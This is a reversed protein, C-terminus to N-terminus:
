DQAVSVSVDRQGKFFNRIAKAVIEPDHTVPIKYYFIMTGEVQSAKATSPLGARQLIAEVDRRVNFTRSPDFGSLAADIQEDTANPDAMLDDISDDMGIDVEVVVSKGWASKGGGAENRRVGRGRKTAAPRRKAARGNMVLEDAQVQEAVEAAREAAAALQCGQYHSFGDAEPCGCSECTQCSPCYSTYRGTVLGHDGCEECEGVCRGRQDRGDPPCEHNRRPNEATWGPHPMGGRRDISFRGRGRDLVDERESTIDREVARRQAHCTRCRGRRMASGTELSGGCDVCDSPNERSAEGMEVQRESFDADDLATHGSLTAGIEQAERHCASGPRVIIIEFWGPGWHGFRHTEHDNGDPDLKDLSREAVSFNSVELAESDRTRSVPAVLWESRDRDDDRQGMRGAGLGRPDLGTPQFESYSKLVVEESGGNRRRHSRGANPAMDPGEEVFIERDFPMGCLPCAAPVESEPCKLRGWGCGCLVEVHDSDHGNMLMAELEDDDPDGPVDIDEYGGPGIALAPTHPWRYEDDRDPGSIEVGKTGRLRLSALHSSALDMYASARKQTKFYVRACEREQDDVGRRVTKNDGSSLLTPGALVYTINRTQRGQGVPGRVDFPSCVDVYWAGVGKPRRANKEILVPESNKARRRSM